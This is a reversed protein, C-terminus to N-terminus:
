IRQERMQRDGFIDDKAEPHALNRGILERPTKRAGGIEESERSEEIALWRLERAALLLADSPRANMASAGTHQHVLRQRIEIRLEALVHTGFDAAQLASLM